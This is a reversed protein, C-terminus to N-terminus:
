TKSLVNSMLEPMERVRIDEPWESPDGGKRDKLVPWDRMGGGLPVSKMELTIPWTPIPENDAFPRAGLQKVFCPVNTAKCQAVISRVWALDIPRAGPGSEGGVIVWDIPINWGPRPHLSDEFTGIGLYPAINGLDELLPELSLFRVAAPTRRLQDIRDLRQRDEVSVGLWVNPLPWEMPPPQDMAMDRAIQRALKEVRTCAYYYPSEEGASYEWLRKARKTLVQHTLHPTLAMVALCRDIWEDPYDELFMDTMDCNHVLVGNAFFNHTETSLDYLTERKDSAEIRSVKSWSREFDTCGPYYGDDGADSGSALASKPPVCHIEETPYMAATESGLIATCGESISRDWIREASGKSVASAQLEQVAGCSALLIEPALPNVRRGHQNYENHPSFLRRANEPVDADGGRRYPRIPLVTRDEFMGGAGSLVQDAQVGLAETRREQLCVAQRINQTGSYVLIDLMDDQTLNDVRVYGRQTKIRHGLSARLMKGSVTSVTSICDHATPGAFGCLSPVLRGGEDGLVYEGAVIDAIPKESGDAMTVKTDEAVCWFIRAPKKRRLVQQLVAEDLFFEGKAKNEEIYTLGSLYPGEQMKGAYCNKCGPTIKTCYHGVKGTKLNRFRFPNVTFDTWQIPTKNM